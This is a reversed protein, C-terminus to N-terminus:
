PAPAPAGGLDRAGAAVLAARVAPEVAHSLANAGADDLANPDASRGLLLRVRGLDGDGAALILPTAKWSNPLDAPCGADLVLKLMAEDPAAHALTRGDEDRAAPDAGKRLLRKVTAADGKEVASFLRTAVPIAEAEAEATRREELRAALERGGVIAQALLLVLGLGGLFRIGSRKRRVGEAVGGRGLRVGAVVDNPMPGFGGRAADWRGLVHVAEGPSFRSEELDWRALDIPSEVDIAAPTEIRRDFRYGGTAALSEREEGELRKRVEGVTDPSVVDVFTAAALFARARAVTEPGKLTKPAEGLIPPELMRVAGFSTRITCPALAEGAYADISTTRRKGNPMRMSGMRVVRYAYVLAPEGSFPAELVAETSPELTGVAAGRKGDGPPIGLEAEGLLRIEKRQRLVGAVSLLTGLGLLGLVAAKELPAEGGAPRLAAAWAATLVGFAVAAALVVRVCGRNV